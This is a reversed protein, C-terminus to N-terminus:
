AGHLADRSDRLHPITRPVPEHEPQARGEDRERSRRGRRRLGDAGRRLGRGRRGGCRRGRVSPEVIRPEARATARDGLAAGLLRLRTGRAVEHQEHAVAEAQRRDRRCPDVRTLLAAVRALVARERELLQRVRPEHLDVVGVLHHRVRRPRHRGDDRAHLRLGAHEAHMGAHHEAVVLAHGGRAHRRDELLGLLASERRADDRRRADGVRGRGSAIRVGRVAVPLVVGRQGVGRPLRVKGVERPLEDLERIAVADVDHEAAAAAREEARVLWVGLVRTHRALAEILAVERLLPAVRRRTAREDPVGLLQARETPAALDQAQEVRAVHLELGIALTVGRALGRERRHGLERQPPERAGFAAEHEHDLRAPDIVGMVEVVGVAREVLGDLERVRHADRARHRVRALGQDDDGGVVGM